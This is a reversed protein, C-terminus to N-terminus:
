RLWAFVVMVQKYEGVCGTGTEKLHSLVSFYTSLQRLLFTKLILDKGAEKQAGPCHLELRYTQTEQAPTEWGLYHSNQTPKKWTPLLLLTVTASITRFHQTKHPRRTAAKLLFLTSEPDSLPHKAWSISNCLTSRVLQNQSSPSNVSHPLM